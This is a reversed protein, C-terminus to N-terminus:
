DSMQGIREHCTRLAKSMDEFGCLNIAEDLNLWKFAQHEDSLIIPTSPELEALYYTVLKPKQVGDRHNTVDYRLEVQFDAVVKM